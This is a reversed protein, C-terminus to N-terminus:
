ASVNSKAQLGKFRFYETLKYGNYRGMIINIALVILLLEPFTFILYASFENYMCLYAIIAAILSNIGTRIAEKAGSEEWLLTMREITMTLIVMPFLSISLGVSIGLHHTVVSIGSIVLVVVTLIAALRPVMLLQLKDFYSRILLGITVIFTFLIVGWFLQTERFSLAVLVPMFTGFTKLGIFQRLFANVMAGVPVMLLVHFVLQTDIPLSMLSLNYVIKAAENGQWIAQIISDQTNRKIAISLHPGNGGELKFLPDSGYWWPLLSEKTDFVGKEMNVPHWERDTYVEVWSVLDAKREEIVLRLGNAIRTPIGASNLIFSALAPDSLVTGAQQRLAKIRENAHGNIESFLETVFSADDASRERIEDILSKLAFYQPDSEALKNFEETGYRYQVDPKPKKGKSEVEGERGVPASLEYIVSHYFLVEHGSSKRKTWIAERNGLEAEETQSVGFGHGNFTEDVIAMRDTGQPLRMTVKVPRNRGSFELKAEVHWSSSKTNPTLPFGLGLWKYGFISLAVATLFFGLLWPASFKM